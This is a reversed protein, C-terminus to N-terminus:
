RVVSGLFDDYQSKARDAEKTTFHEMKFLKNVLSEFKAFSMESRKAEKRVMVLNVPSREQLKLMINM